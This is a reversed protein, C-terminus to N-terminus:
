TITANPAVGILVKFSHMGRYSSYTMKQESMLKPSAIQVDISDIVMRCNGFLVFTEPHSSRNKDCSTIVKMADEYLLKYLIYICTIHVKSVTSTSCHFLSLHLNTYNHRLKMLTMFIQDELSILDVKWGSYYKLVIVSVNSM